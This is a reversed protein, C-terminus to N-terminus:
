LPTRPPYDNVGSSPSLEGNGIPTNGNPDIAGRISPLEHVRKDQSYLEIGVASGIPCVTDKYSVQLTKTIGIDILELPYRLLLLHPTNLGLGLFEAKFICRLLTITKRSPLRSRSSSCTTPDISRACPLFIPQLPFCIGLVALTYLAYNTINVMWFRPSLSMGPVKM